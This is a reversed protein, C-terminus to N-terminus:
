KGYRKTIARARGQRKRAAKKAPDAPRKKVRWRLRPRPAQRRLRNKLDWADRIEFPDPAGILFALSPFSLISVM